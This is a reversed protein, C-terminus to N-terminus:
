RINGKYKWELSKNEQTYITDHYMSGGGIVPLFAGGDVVLYVIDDIVNEALADESDVWYEVSTKVKYEDLTMGLRKSIEIDMKDVYRQITTIFSDIRDVDGSAGVSAPHFMILSRDTAYRKTGYELIVAAMSACFTYCVTYVPARSVQMASIFAAGDVVSGGPSNLVVYIPKKSDQNMEHLREAGEVANFGIGGYLRITRDPDLKLKKINKVSKVVEKTETVKLTEGMLQKDNLVDKGPSLVSITGPSQDYISISSVTPVNETHYVSEVKM